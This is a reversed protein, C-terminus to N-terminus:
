YYRAKDLVWLVTSALKTDCVVYNFIFEHNQTHFLRQQIFKTLYSHLTEKVPETLSRPYIKRNGLKKDELECEPRLPGGLRKNILAHFESSIGTDLM